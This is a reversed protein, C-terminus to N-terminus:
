EVDTLVDDTNVIHSSDVPKDTDSAAQGDDDSVDMGTLLANVEDQSLMGADM